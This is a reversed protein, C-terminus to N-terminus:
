FLKLYRKVSRLSVNHDAAVEEKPFGIIVSLVISWRTLDNTPATM